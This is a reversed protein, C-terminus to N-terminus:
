YIIQMLTDINKEAEYKKTWEDESCFVQAGYPFLSFNKKSCSIYSSTAWSLTPFYIFMKKKIRQIKPTVLVCTNFALNLIENEADNRADRNVFIIHFITVSIGNEFTTKWPFGIHQHYFISCLYHQIIYVYM